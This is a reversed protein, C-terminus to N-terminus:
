AHLHALAHAVHAAAALVARAPRGAAWASIPVGEVRAEVLYAAGDERFLDIAEVLAPHRVRRLAAFEAALREYASPGVKKLAVARDGLWVDVALLVEGQGGEGLAGVVRYRRGLM